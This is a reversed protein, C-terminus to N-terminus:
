GGERSEIKTRTAACTAAMDQMTLNLQRSDEHRLHEWREHRETVEQLVRNHSDQVATLSQRFVRQQEPITRTLLYWVSWALVGLASLQSANSVWGPETVNAVLQSVGFMGVAVILPKM